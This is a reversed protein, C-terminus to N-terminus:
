DYFSWSLGYRLMGRNQPYHAAGMYNYLGFLDYNLHQYKILIRMRKWKGTVFANIMPYNGIRVDRQNYFQQIAPNYGFGYYLTNYYGELGLSVRLVNKVVDFEFYYNINAAITPVPVVRRDSSYQFLVNHEFHWGRYVFDKNLFIGTVSVAGDAQRPTGTTGFYIYQNLISQTVGVNLRIPTIKLAAKLETVNQKGFNNNWRFHNSSYNSVWYSPSQLTFRASFSLTIPRQKIYASIDVNGGVSLDQTREGIPIYKVDAMWKLYKKYQGQADAYIYINNDVADKRGQFIYDSPSFMYYKENSYGVGASILGIIGDRKYPQFQAFAKVDIMRERISDRSQNPNIYWNRYFDGSGAKTDTYVNRYASYKFSTGFFLSTEEAVKKLQFNNLMATDYKMVSVLPVALTQTFYFENGKFHNRADQLNVPINRPLGAYEGEPAIIYADNAVGGNEAIDGMNYIYGMHMSYRKGTHSLALSLNKNTSKQNQYIGRTKNNRYSLNISTSPNINQQHILSFQEEAYQRQGSTFYAANTYPKRGNYFRVNDERYLYPDYADLFSLNYNDARETFDLPVVAAGLNGLYTVGVPNEKLFFYNKQFDHLMTDIEVMRVNNTYPDITWSFMSKSKISDNFYWSELPKPPRRPRKSGITDLPETTNIPETAYLNNYQGRIDQASVRYPSSFFLIMTLSVSIYIIHKLTKGSM